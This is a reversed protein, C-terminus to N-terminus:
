ASVSGKGVRNPSHIARDRATRITYLLVIIRSTGLMQSLGWRLFGTERLAVILLAYFTTTSAIPSGRSVKFRLLMSDTPIATQIGASSSM